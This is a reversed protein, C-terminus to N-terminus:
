AGTGAGRRDHGSGVVRAPARLDRLREGPALRVRREVVRHGIERGRQAAAADVPEGVRCPLEHLVDADHLAVDEVEAAVRVVDLRVPGVVVPRAIGLRLRRGGPVLAEGGVAGVAGREGCQGLVRLRRGVQECRDRVAGALREDSAHLEGGVV